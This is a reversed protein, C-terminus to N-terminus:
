FRKINSVELWKPYTEFSATHKRCVTVMLAEEADSFILIKQFGLCRFIFIKLNSIKDFDDIKGNKDNLIKQKYTEFRFEQNVKHNM